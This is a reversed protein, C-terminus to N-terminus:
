GALNGVEASAANIGEAVAVIRDFNQDAQIATNLIEMQALFKAVQESSLPPFAGSQAERENIVIELANKQAIMEAILSTLTKRQQILVPTGSTTSDRQETLVTLNVELNAVANKLESIVSSNDM